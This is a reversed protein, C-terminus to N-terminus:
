ILPNEIREPHFDAYWSLVMEILNIEENGKAILPNIAINVEIGNTGGYMYDGATFWMLYRGQCQMNRAADYNTTNYEDIMATLSFKKRAEVERDLSIKVLNFEPKPLEGSVHFDRIDAPNDTGSDDLRSTWEALDTWDALEQDIATLYIHDVEDFYVEPNCEDFDVVPVEYDCDTPCTITPYSM